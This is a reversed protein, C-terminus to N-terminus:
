RIVLLSAAAIRMTSSDMTSMVEEKILHSNLQTIKRDSLM